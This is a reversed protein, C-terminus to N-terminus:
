QLLVTELRIEGGKLLAVSFNNSGIDFGIKAKVM